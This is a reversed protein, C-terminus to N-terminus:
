GFRATISNSVKEDEDLKKFNAIRENYRGEDFDISIFKIFEKGYTTLEAQKEDENLSEPGNQLANWTKASKVLYLRELKNYIQQAFGEIEVSEKTNELPFKEIIAAYYFLIRVDEFRLNGM